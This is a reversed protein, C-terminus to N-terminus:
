KHTATSRGPPPGTIDVVGNIHLDPEAFVSEHCNSCSTSDPHGAFVPPFGHCTSCAVEGVNTWTPTPNSGVGALTSGHCYIASCTTGNWVPSTDGGHVADDGWTLLPDGDSHTMASPVVHCDDCEFEKHWTSTRLHSQHAGVSTLATSSNGSTDVPPANNETSGHCSNCSLQVDVQGNIHSAPDIWVNDDYVAAHCNGCATSAPHSGGPPITHCTGCAAQSSDVTTWVPQTLPGPSDLLSGHCYVGACTTDNWVPTTDGGHVADDGFTVRPDGDAHIMAMPMVHCDNCEFQKHWTSNGLHSQHAGVSTLATSSNGKTDLPPANNAQSGHCSNCSTQVDVQGNIHLDPDFFNLDSDVTEGHCTGCTGLSATPHPPDPPLGHCSGCAAQTGNVTTWTPEDNTGGAILTAGHCYVGACTAADHDFSPTAADAGALTGWHVEAPQVDIHGEDEVASPVVHCANCPIELHWDSPGLHSQHAGVTVLDTNSNGKTDVPPASNAESGHCGSCALGSVQVKGDIHYGGEVDIAGTSTVTAPHCQACETNAVHPPPPPAGHCTGCAAEGLEVRNWFPVKNIGGGLTAGHCYTDSCRMSVRDWSPAAGQATALDGFTLEAPKPDIHGPQSVFEPVVHCEECDIAKRLEGGTLHSRHAGVAIDNTATEGNLGMPPAPSSKDGHCTDCTPIGEPLGDALQEACGAAIVALTLAMFLKIAHMDSGKNSARSMM